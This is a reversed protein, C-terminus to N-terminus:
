TAEPPSPPSPSSAFFANLKKTREEIRYEQDELSSLPVYLMNKDLLELLMRKKEEFALAEFADRSTRLLSKRLHYKLHAKAELLLDDWCALLEPHSRAREIRTVYAQNLAMLECYVFDGGGRWSAHPSVGGQEGQIVKKMREVVIPEIYDMQEVGIYRRGMKHAVALTTGSGLHFDMVLDQPRTAIDILYFLLYEPKATEFVATEGFLAALEKNADENMPFRRADMLSYPLTGKKLRQKKYLQQVGHKNKRFCAEGLDLLEKLTDSAYVSKEIHHTEGRYSLTRTKGRTAHAVPKWYFVGQGDREKYDALDEQTYSVRWQTQGKEKVFALIYDHQLAMYRTNQNGSKNKKWLFTGVCHDRGFIEDMLVKLYAQEHDDCQVFIVGEKSLFDRALELRNKMFTLWTSHRFHDNYLFSDKGTNYPPDIYILKVRGAYRKKLTHLVLLNNGKIVLNDDDCLTEVESVGSSSFRKFHTLVKPELFLDLESRALLENWFFETRKQNPRTQGAELTCDKYPWHLVFEDLESLLVDKQGLGIKNKFRTFSDPLFSKHHVFQTFKVKDFVWLEGVKAFFAQRLPDSALLAELLGRDLKLAETVVKNRMVRGNQVFREDRALLAELEELLDPM